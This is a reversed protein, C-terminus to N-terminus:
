LVLLTPPPPFCVPLLQHECQLIVREQHLCQDCLNLPPLRRGRQRGCAMLAHVLRRRSILIGSLLMVRARRRRLGSATTTISRPVPGLVTRTITATTTVTLLLLLLSRLFSPPIHHIDPGELVKQRRSRRQQLLLM